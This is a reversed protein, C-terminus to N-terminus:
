NAATLLIGWTVFWLAFTMFAIYLTDKAGFDDTDIGILKYLPLQVAIAVLVILAGATDDPASALVNSLIGAVIGLLTAGTTVTISRMYSSFGGDADTGAGVSEEADAETTSETTETAM